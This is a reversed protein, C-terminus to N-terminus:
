IGRKTTIIVVGNAGRSGYIATAGADKLIDIRAVDHPNLGTLANSGHVPMGDIVILPESNGLFTSTGRIRLSLQGNPMRVVHVGAFRGQIMEEVRTVRQGAIEEATISGVSGTIEVRERTDYGVRVEHMPESPRPPAGGSACASGLLVAMAVPTVRLTARGITSSTMAGERLSLYVGQLWPEGPRERRYPLLPLIPGADSPLGTGDGM